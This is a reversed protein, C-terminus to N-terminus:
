TRGDDTSIQSPRRLRLAVDFLNLINVDEMERQAVNFRGGWPMHIGQEAWVDRIKHPPVSGPMPMFEARLHAHHADGSGENLVEESIQASSPTGKLLHAQALRQENAAVELTRFKDRVAARKQLKVETFFRLREMFKPTLPTSPTPKPEMQLFSQPSFSVNMRFPASTFTPTHRPPLVRRQQLHLVRRVPSKRERWGHKRKRSATRKKPTHKLEPEPAAAEGVGLDALLMSNAADPSQGDGGGMAGEKVQRVYELAIRQARDQVTQIRREYEACAEAHSAEANAIQTSLSQIRDEYETQLIQLQQAHLLTLEMVDQLTFYEKQGDVANMLDETPVEGTSTETQVLPHVDMFRNITEQMEEEDYDEMYKEDFRAYEDDDDDSDGDESWEEDERAGRKASRGRSISRSRERREASARWLGRERDRSRRDETIPQIPRRLRAGRGVSYLVNFSNSRTLRPM